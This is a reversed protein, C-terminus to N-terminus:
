VHYLEEGWFVRTLGVRKTKVIQLIESCYRVDKIKAWVSEILYACWFPIWPRNPDKLPWGKWPGGWNARNNYYRYFGRLNLLDVHFTNLPPLTVLNSVAQQTISNYRFHPWKPFISFHNKKLFINSTYTPRGHKFHSTMLIKISVKSLINMLYFYFHFHCDAPEFRPASFWLGLLVAGKDM